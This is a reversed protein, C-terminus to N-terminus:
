LLQAHSCNIRLISAFVCQVAFTRLQMTIPLSAAFWVHYLVCRGCLQYQGLLQRGTTYRLAHIRFAVAASCPLVYIRMSVQKLEDRLQAVELAAEHKERRATGGPWKKHM